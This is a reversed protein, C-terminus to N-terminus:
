SEALAEALEPVAASVEAPPSFRACASALFAVM